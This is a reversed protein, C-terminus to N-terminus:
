KQILNGKSDFVLGERTINSGHHEQNHCTQCLAELLNWNLSINPDHVNSDNLYVKHHCIKAIDGCRECMYNQSQMYGRSCKIWAASKYFARRIGESM